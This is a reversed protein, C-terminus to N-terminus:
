PYLYPNQPAEVIEISDALIVPMQDGRFEGVQMQGGVRVWEGAPLGATDAWQVPLGIASSDAVCCSITFRAVMFQDDNMSPERYIFGIVDAPQGQLAAYDDTTNFVRLWDLVNRNQPAITFTEADGAANAVGVSTEITGVADAGLPQSPILTGLVLPVAIIAIMGWSPAAHTPDNMTLTPPANRSRWNQYLSFAGLLFFLGAALYSLWAFRMNIYNNLNGSVIIFTFYLGLGILVASKAWAIRRARTNAQEIVIAQPNFTTDM